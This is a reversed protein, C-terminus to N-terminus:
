HPGFWGHLFRAARRFAKGRHSIANKEEMSMEALTVAYGDPQFVPDYGFGHEGRPERVIRGELTEEITDLVATPDAIVLACHFRATRLPDPTETLQALLRVIREADTPAFRRSHVGPGGELADGALGSDDAVARLGTRMGAAVARV